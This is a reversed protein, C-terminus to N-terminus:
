WTPWFSAENAFADAYYRLLNRRMTAYKQGLMSKDVREAPHINDVVAFVEECLEDNNSRRYDAVVFSVPAHIDYRRLEDFHKKSLAAFEEATVEGSEKAHWRRKELMHQWRLPRIVADTGSEMQLLTDDRTKAGHESHPMLTNKFAPIDMKEKM